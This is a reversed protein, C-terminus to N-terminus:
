PKKRSLREIPVVVPDLETTQGGIVQIKLDKALYGPLEHWVRFSHEGAPLGKISFKGEKDTVAAYPHDVVLVTGRMWPFFDDTIPMPLSEVFKLDIATGRMDNADLGFVQQPNSLTHTHLNHVRPSPNVFRLKQDTRVVVARPVFRLDKVTMVVEPEVSRQLEPAIAAPAKRLYIFINCLGGTKQDVECSEDPVDFNMRPPDRRLLPPLVEVLGETVFRGTIDGFEEARSLSTVLFSLTTAVVCLPAFRSAKM